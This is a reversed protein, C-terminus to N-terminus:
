AYYMFVFTGNVLMDQLFSAKALYCRLVFFLCVLVFVFFFLFLFFSVHWTISRAFINKHFVFAGSLSLNWLYGHRRMPPDLFKQFPPGASPGESSVSLISAGHRLLHPLIFVGGQEFGLSQGGFM